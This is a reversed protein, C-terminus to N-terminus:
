VYLLFSVPLTMLLYIAILPLVHKKEVETCKTGQKEDTSDNQIMEGCWQHIPGQEYLM